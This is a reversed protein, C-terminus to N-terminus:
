SLNNLTVVFSSLIFQSRYRFGWALGSGTLFASVALDISPWNTDLALLYIIVHIYPKYKGDYDPTEPYIQNILVLTQCDRLFGLSTSLYCLKYFIWKRGQIDMCKEIAKIKIVLFTRKIIHWKNARLSM